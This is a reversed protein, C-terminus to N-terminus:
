IPYALRSLNNDIAIDHIFDIVLRAVNTKVDASYIAGNKFNEEFSAYNDFFIDSGYREDRKFLIGGPFLEFLIYKLLGFIGVDDIQKDVCYAKSIKSIIIEDSDDFDLKSSEISSSMKNNKTDKKLSPVIPNMIYARKAYGIKPM